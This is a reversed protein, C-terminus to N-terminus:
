DKTMTALTIQVTWEQNGSRNVRVNINSVILAYLKKTKGNPREEKGGKTFVVRLENTQYSGYKSPYNTM